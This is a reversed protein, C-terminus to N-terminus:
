VFKPFVDCPSFKHMKPTGDIRAPASGSCYLKDYVNENLMYM